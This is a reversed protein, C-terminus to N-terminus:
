VKLARSDDYITSDELYQFGLIQGSEYNELFVNYGYQTGSDSTKSIKFISRCTDPHIIVTFQSNLIYFLSYYQEDESTKKSTSIDFYNDELTYDDGAWSLITEKDLNEMRNEEKKDDNGKLWASLKISNDSSIYTTYNDGYLVQSNDLMLSSSSDLYFDVANGNIDFGVNYHSLSDENIYNTKRVYGNHPGDGYAYKDCLITHELSAINHQGMIAGEIHERENATSDYTSYTAFNIYRLRM